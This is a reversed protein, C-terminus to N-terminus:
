GSTPRARCSKSKTIATTAAFMSGSGVTAPRSGLGAPTIRTTTDVLASCSSIATTSGITSIIAAGHLADVGDRFVDGTMPAATMPGGRNSGM